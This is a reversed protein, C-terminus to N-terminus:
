EIDCNARVHFFLVRRHVCQVREDFTALRRPVDREVARALLPIGFEITASVRSPTVFPTPKDPSVPPADDARTSNCLVTACLLATAACLYATVKSMAESRRM